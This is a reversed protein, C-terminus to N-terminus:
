RSDMVLNIQRKSRAAVLNIRPVPALDISQGLKAEYESLGSELSQELNLDGLCLFFSFCSLDM